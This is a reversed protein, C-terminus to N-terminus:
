YRTARSESRSLVLVFWSIWVLKVQRAIVEPVLVSLSHHLDIYKADVQYRLLKHNTGWVAHCGVSGLVDNTNSIVFNNNTIFVPRPPVYM